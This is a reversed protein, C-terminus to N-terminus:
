IGEKFYSHNPWDINNNENGQKPLDELFLKYDKSFINIGM